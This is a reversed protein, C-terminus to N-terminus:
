RQPRCGWRGPHGPVPPLPWRLAVSVCLRFVSAGRQLWVLTM